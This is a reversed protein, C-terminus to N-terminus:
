QQARRALEAQAIREINEQMTYYRGGVSEHLHYARCLARLQHASLADLFTYPDSAAQLQGKLNNRFM